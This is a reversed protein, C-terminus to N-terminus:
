WYPSFFPGGLYLPQQSRTVSLGVSLKSHDGLRIGLDAGLTTAPSAFRPTPAPGMLRQRGDLLGFDHVLYVSGDLRPTFQYNAQAFLSLSTGGGWGTFNTLSAGGVLTLRPNVPYVYAGSVSTFFSAGRWPNHRGLGVTVGMDVSLHLPSPNSTLPSLHPSASVRWPLAERQHPTLPSLHSTLTDVSVLGEDEQASLPLVLLFTALLLLQRM